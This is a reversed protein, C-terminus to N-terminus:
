IKLKVLTCGKNHYWSKYELAKKSKQLTRKTTERLIGSGMGHIIVIFEQKLKINDHIFENIRYEAIDSPMGHLDLTPLSDIFIINDLSM